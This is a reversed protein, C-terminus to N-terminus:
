LHTYTPEKKSIKVGFLFNKASIVGFRGFGGWFQSEGFNGRFEGIQSHYTCRAAVVFVPHPGQVGSFLLLNAGPITELNGFNSHSWGVSARVFIESISTRGGLNGFETLVKLEQFALELSLPISQNRALGTIKKGLHGKFDLIPGSVAIRCFLIAM